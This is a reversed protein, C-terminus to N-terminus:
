KEDCHKSKEKGENVLFYRMAMKAEPVPLLAFFYNFIKGVFMKIIYFNFYGKNGAVIGICTHQLNCFFIM